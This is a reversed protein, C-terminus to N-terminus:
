KLGCGFANIVKVGTASAGFAPDQGDEPILYGGLLPLGVFGV